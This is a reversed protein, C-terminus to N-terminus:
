GRLSFDRMAKTVADLQAQRGPGAGGGQAADAAHEAQGDAAASNGLADGGARKGGLGAPTPGGRAPARGRRTDTTSRPGAGARKAADRGATDRKGRAERGMGM